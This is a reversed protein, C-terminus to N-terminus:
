QDAMRAKVMATLAEETNNAPTELVADLLANLIEGMAKGKPVGLEALANGDLVLDKITLPDQRKTITQALALAAAAATSGQAKHFELLLCGHETGLRSLLRRVQAEGAPLPEAKNLVVTETAKATKNDFHLHDFLSRLQKRNLNQLLLAWRLAPTQPAAALAPCLAEKPPPCLSELLGTEWLLPVRDTYPCLLLKETEERIREGSIRDILRVNELLATFTAEEIEFGLQASFRIARLMRLADEQFRKAPEGVGRITRNKIDTQGDFPDAFGLEPHYAIANMTFDRRLLDETLDRTFAVSEPHRGDLYEGDIRYTTVEYHEKDYVVTVTGHRIGTDYTRRFLAKTELPLASTTIDWDHPAIGLLFDRVCGGVIWAEYGNKNLTNLIHQVDKPLAPQM